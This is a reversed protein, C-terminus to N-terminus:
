GNKDQVQINFINKGVKLINKRTKRKQISRQGLFMDQYSLGLIIEDNFQFKINYKSNFLQNDKIIQNFDRDVTHYSSLFANDEDEGVDSLLTMYVTWWILLLGIIFKIIFLSYILWKAMPKKEINNAM